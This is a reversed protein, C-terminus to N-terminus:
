RKKRALERRYLFRIVRAVRYIIQESYTLAVKKWAAKGGVTLAAVVTVMLTSLVTESLGPRILLIRYVIAAAMAGSLTGSIDGILDNCVTTVRDANRVLWVATRAGKVRAAAMSHFPKEDAAAAATGILDFFIGFAVVALLLIFAPVLGVQTLLTQSIINFFLAFLGSWFGLTLFSRLM